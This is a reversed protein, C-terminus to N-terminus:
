RHHDRTPVVAAVAAATVAVRRVDATAAAVDSSRAARGAPHLVYADPKSLRLDHRLAMAAMPWGANPSATAGAEVALRRLGVRPALALATLRAPVWNLADDLRAAAVGWWRWPPWRYGWMADATNVTRYLAAAPLGGVGYWWLPAVVSDSLNEAASEIAAERVATADLATVDRSVLGALRLRATPLDRRALAADTARVEDVLMRESLLTSLVAAEIITAATPPLRHAGARVAQAVAVVLACTLALWAAGGAIQRSAAHDDRRRRAAVDLLRGIWVVPHVATPPEGIARDIALALVPVIAM